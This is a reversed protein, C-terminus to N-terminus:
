ISLCGHIHWDPFDPSEPVITYVQKHETNLLTKDYPTLMYFNGHQPDYCLLGHTTALWLKGNIDKEIDFVPGIDISQNDYHLVEIVSHKASDLRVKQLGASTGLWLVPGDNLLCNLSNGLFLDKKIFPYRTSFRIRADQLPNIIELEHESLALYENQNFHYFGMVRSNDLTKFNKRTLSVPDAVDFTNNSYAIFLENGTGSAMAIIRDAPLTLGQSRTSYNRLPLRSARIKVIGETTGGWIVGYEDITFKKIGPDTAQTIRTFIGKEEDYSFLGAATTIILAGDPAQNIDTVINSPQASNNGGPFYGEFNYDVQDFRNLGNETGIWLFNRDDLFLCNVRQDTLLGHASQQMFETFSRQQRNFFLIGSSTGIWLNDNIDPLLCTTVFDPQLLPRPVLSYRNAKGPNVSILVSDSLVWVVGYKGPYIDRPMNLQTAPHDSQYLPFYGIEGTKPHILTLGEGALIWLSGQKDKKISIIPQDSPFRQGNKQLPFQIYNYGDYRNLEDQTATWLYGMNDFILSTVEQSSLGNAVPILEPPLYSQGELPRILQLIFILIYFRYYPM